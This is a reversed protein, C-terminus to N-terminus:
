PFKQLQLIITEYPKMAFGDILHFMGGQENINIPSFEGEGLIPVPYHQGESLGSDSKTIWINSVPRNSINILVLVSEDESVRLISYVAEDTTTLVDLEGVRLAAHENRIRILKKYHALISDVDGSEDVVNYYEWAPGLPHWPTGTSFGSNLENSWQMPRRVWEHSQDGQMGIEEGYYIFPVGPATLLMSAAAKMKQEDDFLQSMVRDMDHNTLFTGFRMEPIESYSLLLQDNVSDADGANVSEIM